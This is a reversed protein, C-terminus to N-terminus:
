PLNWTLRSRCQNTCAAGFNRPCRLAVTQLANALESVTAKLTDGDAVQGKTNTNRNRLGANERYTGNGPLRGDPGHLADLLLSMMWEAEREQETLERRRKM